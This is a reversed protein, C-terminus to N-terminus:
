QNKITGKIMEIALNKNEHNMLAFAYMIKYFDAKKNNKKMLKLLAKRENNELTKLISEIENEKNKKIKTNNEQKTYFLASISLTMLIFFLIFAVVFIPWKIVQDFEFKFLTSLLTSIGFSLAGSIYKHRVFFDFRDLIIFSFSFMTYECFASYVWSAPNLFTSFDFCYTGISTFAFLVSSTILNTIQKPSKFMRKLIEKYKM